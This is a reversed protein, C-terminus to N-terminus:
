ICKPPWAGLGCSHSLAAPGWCAKRELLLGLRSWDTVRHSHAPPYLPVLWSLTLSTIYYLLVSSCTNTLSSAITCSYLRVPVQGLLRPPTGFHQPSAPATEEYQDWFYINQFSASLLCSLINQEWGSLECFDNKPPSIAFITKADPQSLLFIPGHQM